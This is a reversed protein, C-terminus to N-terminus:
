KTEGTSSFIFNNQIKKDNSDVIKIAAPKKITPILVDFLRKM